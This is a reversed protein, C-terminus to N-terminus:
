EKPEPLTPVMLANQFSSSRVKSVLGNLKKLQEKLPELEPRNPVKSADQLEVIRAFRETQLEYRRAAAPLTEIRDEYTAALCYGGAEQIVLEEYPKEALLKKARSMTGSMSRLVNSDQAPTKARRTAVRYIVGKPIFTGPYKDKAFLLIQAYRLAMGMTEDLVFGSFDLKNSVRNSM